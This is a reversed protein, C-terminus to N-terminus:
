WLSWDVSVNENRSTPKQLGNTLEEVRQGVIKKLESIKMTKNKEMAELICYTFVGNRLDGRELAFQTGTAASIITAGTSKGVNVFLNQMLEFSNKMGLKGDSEYAVTIGGKTLHLSDSAKNIRVLEEKDVEGSHCADILMLKKRAPISDLLNELEDYPLGEEEPKEFNINYTSLYYDFDKSLLGHGSYSIVVKDNVTTTKLKEKLAKISSVNVNENFLTDITIANGYKEKLKSSLDRIDKSSYQLNNKNEKFKDIGIGIFYTTSNQNIAPTYNVILPMRYSESGNVNTISTEIRNVGQSLEITLTTDLENKNGKRLSVGRQGFIPVQNVWINFRDLKYVPDTGKVRLKITKGIQEYEMDDRNEFDCEPVTYDDRFNTTDLGLKKIRKEWAKRYSRILATDSSGIAELVKDPRNYKIDMQEFTIVRLDTTVYHLRNAASPSAFYYKGPVTTLIANAALRLFNFVIKQKLPDVVMCQNNLDLLYLLGRSGDFKMWQVTEGNLNGISFLYQGGSLDYFEVSNRCLLALRGTKWDIAYKEQYLDKTIFKNFSVGTNMWHFELGNSLNSAILLSDLCLFNRDRLFASRFFESKKESSGTPYVVYEASPDIITFFSSDKEFKAYNVNSFLRPATLSKKSMVDLGWIYKSGLMTVTLSFPDFFFKEVTEAIPITLSAVPPIGNDSLDWICVTGKGSRTALYRNSLTSVWKAPEGDALLKRIVKKSQLDFISVASDISTVVYFKLSGPIFGSALTTYFSNGSIADVKYQLSDKALDWVMIRGKEATLCYRGDQSFNAIASRNNTLSRKLDDAFEESFFYLSDYKKSLQSHIPKWQIIKFNELEYIYSSDDTHVVLMSHGDNSLAINKIGSANETKINGVLVGKPIDWFNISRDAGVDLLIKGSNSEKIFEVHRDPQCYITKTVRSTKLDFLHIKESSASNKYDVFYITRQDASIVSGWQYPSVTPDELSKNVLFANKILDIVRMSYRDLYYLRGEAEVVLYDMYDASIKGRFLISGDSIKWVLFSDNLTLSLVMNKKDSFYNKDYIQFNRPYKYLIGSDKKFVYFSDNSNYIEYPNQVALFNVAGKRLLLSAEENPDNLSNIFVSDSNLKTVLFGGKDDFYFSAVDPLAKDQIVFETKRDTTRFKIVRGSKGLLLYKGDASIDWIYDIYANSKWLTSGNEIDWQTGRGGVSGFLKGKNYVLPSQRDISDLHTTTNKLLDIIVAKNDNIRLLIKKESETVMFNGSEIENDEYIIRSWTSYIGSKKLASRSYAAYIFSDNNSFHATYVWCDKSGSLDKILRGNGAERVFVRGAGGAAVFSSGTHNFELFYYYGTETLKFQTTKKLLDWSILLGNNYNILLQTSTNNFVCCAIEAGLSCSFLSDGSYVDYVVAYDEGGYLFIYKGDPSLSYNNSYHIRKFATLLYGSKVDWLKVSTRDSGIIFKNNQSFGASEYSNDGVPVVLKPQQGFSDSLYFFFPILFCIIRM